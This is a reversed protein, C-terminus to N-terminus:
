KGGGIWRRQKGTVTITSSKEAAPEPQVDAQQQQEAERRETIVSVRKDVPICKAILAETSHERVVEDTVGFMALAAEPTMVPPEIVAVPEVVVAIHALTSPGTGEALVDRSELAVLEARMRELAREAATIQVRADTVRQEHAAKEAELDRPLDVQAHPSLGEILNKCGIAFPRWPQGTEIAVRLRELTDRFRAVTRHDPQSRSAIALFLADLQGLGDEDPTFAVRNRLLRAITDATRAKAGHAAVKLETAHISLMSSIHEVVSGRTRKGDVAGQILRALRNIEFDSFIGAQHATALQRQQGETPVDSELISVWRPDIPTNGNSNSSSM